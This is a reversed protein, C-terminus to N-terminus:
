KRDDLFRFYVEDYTVMKSHEGDRRFCWVVHYAGAGDGGNMLVFVAEGDMSLFADIGTTQDDYGLHPDYFQGYLTRPIHVPGGDIELRMDKFETRPPDCDTGYMREGDILCDERLRSIDHRKADFPMRAAAFRFSHGGEDKKEITINERAVPVGSGTTDVATTVPVSDVGQTTRGPEESRPSSCSILMLLLCAFRYM